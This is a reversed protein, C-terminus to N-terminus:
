YRRGGIAKYKAMFAPDKAKLIESVRFDPDPIVGIVYAEKSLIVTTCMYRASNGKEMQTIYKVVYYGDLIYIHSIGERAPIENDDNEYLCLRTEGFDATIGFVDMYFRFEMEKNGMVIVHKGAYMRGNYLSLKIGVQAKRGLWGCLPFIDLVESEDSFLRIEYPTVNSPCIGVKKYEQIDRGTAAEITLDDTDWVFYARDEYITRDLEKTQLVSNPNVVFLM